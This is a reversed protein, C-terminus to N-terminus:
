DNQFLCWVVVPFSKVSLISGHGDALAASATVLAANAATVLAANAATVLAANAAHPDSACACAHSFLCRAHLALVAADGHVHSTGALLQMLAKVVWVL